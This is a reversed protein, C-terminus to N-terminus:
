WRMDIAVSIFQFLYHTGHLQSAHPSSQNCHRVPATVTPRHRTKVNTNRKESEDLAACAAHHGRRPGAWCAPLRMHLRLCARGSGGAGCRRCEACEVREGESHLGRVLCVVCSNQMTRGESASGGSGPVTLGSCIASRIM